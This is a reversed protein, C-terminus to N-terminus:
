CVAGFLCSRTRNQTVVFTGVLVGLRPFVGEEVVRGCGDHGKGTKQDEVSRVEVFEREGARIQSGFNEAQESSRM